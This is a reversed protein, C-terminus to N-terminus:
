QLLVVFIITTAVWTEHIETRMWLVVRIQYEIDMLMQRKMIGGNEGGQFNVFEVFLNVADPGFCKGLFGQLQMQQFGGKKVADSGTEDFVDSYDPRQSMVYLVYGLRNGLHDLEDFNCSMSLGLEDIVSSM